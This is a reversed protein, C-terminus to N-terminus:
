VPVIVTSCCGCSMLATCTFAIVWEPPETVLYVESKRLRALVALVSSTLFYPSWMQNVEIKTHQSHKVSSVKTKVMWEIKFWFSGKVVTWSPKTIRWTKELWLNFHSAWVRGSWLQSPHISAIVSLSKSFYRALSKPKPHLCLLINLVSFVRPPKVVKMETNLFPESGLGTHQNFLQKCFVGPPQWLKCCSVELKCVGYDKLSAPKLVM